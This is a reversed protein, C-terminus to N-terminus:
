PPGGANKGRFRDWTGWPDKAAAIIAAALWMGGLGMVFAMAAVDDVQEIGIKRAAAPALYAACGIGAIGRGIAERWDRVRQAVAGVVAGASGAKIFVAKVGFLAELDPLDM